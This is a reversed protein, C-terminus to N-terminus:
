KNRNFLDCALEFCVVYWFQFYLHHIFIKGSLLAILRCDHNLEEKVPVMNMAFSGILVRCSKLVHVWYKKMTEQDLDTYNGFGGESEEV